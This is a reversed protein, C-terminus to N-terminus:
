VVGLSPKFEGSTTSKEETSSPESAAQSLPVEAPNKSFLMDLVFKDQDSLMSCQRQVGAEAFLNALVSM